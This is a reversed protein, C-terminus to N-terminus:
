EDDVKASEAAEIDADAAVAVTAPKSKKSTKRKEGTVVYTPMKKLAVADARLHEKFELTTRADIIGQERLEDVLDSEHQLVISAVKKTKILEVIDPDREQAVQLFAKAADVEKRSENIVQEEEPTDIDGGEGVYEAVRIQAVHHAAIFCSAKYVAEQRISAHLKAGFYDDITVWDPLCQDIFEFVRGM